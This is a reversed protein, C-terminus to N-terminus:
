FRGMAGLESLIFVLASVMAWLGRTESVGERRAKEAGVVHAEPQELVGPM